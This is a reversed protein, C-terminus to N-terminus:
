RRFKYPKSPSVWRPKFKVGTNQRYFFGIPNSSPCKSYRYSQKRYRAVQWKNTVVCSSLLIIGVLALIISKKM